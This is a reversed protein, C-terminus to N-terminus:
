AEYRRLVDELTKLHGEWSWNEEVQERANRGLQRAFDVDTTLKEILNGIKKPNRDVLFGTVGDIITERYGGENVAIVPTGCAMSELAVLGFPEGRATCLTVLASSYEEALKRDTLRPGSKSFDVVKLTINERVLRVAEAATDYGTIRAKEGVFLVSKKKRRRPSFVATDVGLPCVVADRGYVKKIKRKIYESSTLIETAAKANKRDVEKRLERTLLEYWRKPTNVKEKFALEKEYVIRLLEQCYDISPIKLFRLIYPAQTFKDPHVLAVDYGRKGIDHAIKEHLRELVFFNRFDREIRALPRWFRGEISFPYTYLKHVIAKLDLFSSSDETEYVHVEHKKSLHKVEEYVTRKAGGPPVNHFVAIKM